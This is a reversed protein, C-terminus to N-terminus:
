HAQQAAEAAEGPEDAPSTVEPEPEAEVLAEEPEPEAPAVVPVPVPVAPASVVVPGVTTAPEDEIDIM